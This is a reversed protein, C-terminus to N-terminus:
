SLTNQTLECKPYHVCWQLAVSWRRNSLTNNHSRDYEYNIKSSLVSVLSSRKQASCVSWVVTPESTQSKMKLWSSFERHTLITTIKLLQKDYFLWFTKRFFLARFTEYRNCKSLSIKPGWHKGLIEKERIRTGVILIFTCMVHIFFIFWITIM